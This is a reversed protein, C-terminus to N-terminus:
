CERYKPLTFIFKTGKGLESEAWIRGGHLEVLGKAISLGLGTGKEGSGATRGFQMFKDFVKPLAEASIGVGTDSVVFEIENERNILSVDIHGQETFKISNSLLNTFVQIIKDEDICLVAERQGQSLSFRLELGKEGAKNEFASFVNKILAKFDVNKKKLEAKGSEIKSIDLLNNIIRALRDINNMSTALVKQQKPNIRGTVGDLILSIGEKTISLPTRLEHSVISVFDSKLQDLKELESNKRKLEELIKKRETVDEKVAIFNTIVGKADKVASISASEWYFSGDKRKNHFEGQWQGGALITDWLNKYFEPPQEGSKLIRPNKGTVEYYEYGTLQVFKPNVYTINGEKDTIVVVVPSQEVARNLALLRTERNKRETIDQMVGVLGAIKGDPGPYTSKSLLMSHKIGEGDPIDVECTKSDSRNLGFLEMDMGYIIEAPQRPNIDFITKGVVAEKTLGYFRAFAFNCGLYKGQINKYFIPTPINDILAQLHKQSVAIKEASARNIQSIIFFVSFLIFMCFSIFIGLLRHHFIKHQWMKIDMDMGILAVMKNNELDVVPAFASVWSGWRDTYADVIFTKQSLFRAKLESPAEEYVQGPPSSNASSDPESDALFIIKGNDLRLLYVYILDINAENIAKLQEKIRGYDPAGIDAATATLRALRRYNIAASATNAKASLEDINSQRLYIGINHTILWGSIILGSYALFIILIRKWIIRSLGQRDKWRELLYWYTLIIFAACIALACRLLQIPFGFFQAFHEQNFLTHKLLVPPHFIVLQTFAYAGIFFGLAAILRGHNNRLKLSHLILFVGASLASVFGVLYRCTFNFGEERGFHWGLYALLLWPIFFWQNLFKGKLALFSLWSFQALFVFSLLIILLRSLNFAPNDGISIAFLDLWENIAHTFGFMGLWFWPLKTEQTKILLLCAAALIFFSMGYIFFIYDMQSKFLEIM